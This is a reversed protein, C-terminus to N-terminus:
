YYYNQIINIININLVLSLKKGKQQKRKNVLQSTKTSKLRATSIFSVNVNDWILNNSQYITLSILAAKNITQTFNIFCKQFLM